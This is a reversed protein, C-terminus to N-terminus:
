WKYDISLWICSSISTHYIHIETSYWYSYIYLILSFLLNYSIFLKIMLMMSPVGYNGSWLVYCNKDQNHTDCSLMSHILSGEISFSFEKHCYDCLHDTSLINSSLWQVKKKRCWIALLASIPLLGPSGVYRNTFHNGTDSKKANVMQRKPYSSHNKINKKKQPNIYLNLYFYIFCLLFLLITYFPDTLFSFNLGTM